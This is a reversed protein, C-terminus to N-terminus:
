NTGKIFSGDDYRSWVGDHPVVARMLPSTFERMM